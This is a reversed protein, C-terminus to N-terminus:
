ATSRSGCATVGPPERAGEFLEEASVGARERVEAEAAVGVRGGEGAKDRATEADRDRRGGRQEPQRPGADRGGSAVPVGRARALELM